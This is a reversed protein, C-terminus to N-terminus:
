LDRMCYLTKGNIVRQVTYKSLFMDLQSTANCNEALCQENPRHDIKHSGDRLSSMLASSDDQMDVCDLKLPDYVSHIRYSPALTWDDYLGFDDISRSSTQCQLDLFPLLYSSMEYKSWQSRLRMLAELMKEANACEMSLFPFYHFEYIQNEDPLEVNQSEKKWLVAIGRFLTLPFPYFLDTDIENAYELLMKDDASRWHHKLIEYIDSPISKRLEKLLDPLAWTKSKLFCLHAKHRLYARVDFYIVDFSGVLEDLTSNKVISLRRQGIIEVAYTMLQPEFIEGLANMALKLPVQLLTEFLESFESQLCSLQTVLADAVVDIDERRMAQFFPFNFTRMGHMGLELRVERESAPIAKLYANIDYSTIKEVTKDSQELLYPESYRTMRFLESFDSRPCLRTIACSFRTSIALQIQNQVRKGLVYPANQEYFDVFYTQVDDCFYTTGKQVSNQASDNEIELMSKKSSKLMFSSSKGRELKQLVETSIEMILINNSVELEGFHVSMDIFIEENRM